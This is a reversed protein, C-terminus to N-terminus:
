YSAHTNVLTITMATQSGTNFVGRGTFDVTIRGGDRVQVPFTDYLFNPVTITMLAGSSVMSALHVILQGVSQQAFRNYEQLSELDCRGSIRINPRTTGRAYKAWLTSANLIPIGDCPNDAVFQLTEFYEPAIGAISVSAIAWTWPTGTPMGAVASTVNATMLSTVRGLSAFTARVLANANIDLQMRPFICDTFQFSVSEGTGRYVEMTYCPLPSKGSWDALRFNFTHAYGSGLATSSSQGFTSRMFHGVQIPHPELVIDGQSRTIGPLVGGEVLSAQLCEITLRDMQHVLSESVFCTYNWSTTATGFSNQKSIAMYALAGTAM